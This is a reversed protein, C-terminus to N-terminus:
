ISQTTWAMGPQQVEPFLRLIWRAPPQTPVPSRRAPYPLDRGRRSEIGPGGKGYCTANGVVSNRGVFIRQTHIVFALSTLFKTTQELTLAPTFKDGHMGHIVYPYPPLTGSM